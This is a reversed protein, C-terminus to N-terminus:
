YAGDARLVARVTRILIIIDQMMSWNEVYYVDLRAADERSLNSRGSVQWLGSLGPRVRLRLREEESMLEVEHPLAPRPGVLSMEGRLVNWLQPLEDISYRRLFRGPRTIRPDDTMKFLIAGPDSHEDRLQMELEDANPVMTRFKHLRFPTGDRGVRVQQYKVPGGDSAKVVVAVVALVPALLVLLSGSVALDFLRKPARAAREAHPSAVQVLPLGGIPQMRLRAEAVDTISPVVFTGVGREDLEWIHQRVEGQSTTYGGVFIVASPRHRDVAEMVTDTSALVPVGMPTDQSAYGPPTAAGLVRFGLWRERGLVRAISDVHGPAGVLLVRHILRDKARLRHVVRRVALRELLLLVTGVTFAIVFFGRSLPYDALFAAIGVLGATTTSAMLVRQYENGGAGLSRESYSRFAWLVLVWLLVLYPAIRGVNSIVDLADEFVTLRDRLLVAIIISLGITVADVLAIVLRLTWQYREFGSSQGTVVSSLTRLRTNLTGNDLAM